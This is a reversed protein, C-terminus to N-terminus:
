HDLQCMLLYLGNLAPKLKCSKSSSSVVTCHHLVMEVKHYELLTKLAPSGAMERWNEEQQNKADCTM